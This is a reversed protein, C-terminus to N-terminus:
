FLSIQKESTINKPYSFNVAIERPNNWHDTYKLSKNRLAYDYLDRTLTVDAECYSQLQKLLVPDNSQWYKIANSGSDTKGRGLTQKAFSNLSYRRGLSKYVENLIDFHPLKAFGIPSYPKLAPVDFTISNFGIIRDAQQFYKWMADLENEWFSHMEGTKETLTSDLERFYLSVLSVGLDAPNYTGTEDFFKKTEVDFIVEFM